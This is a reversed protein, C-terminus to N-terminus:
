KTTGEVDDWSGDDQEKSKKFKKLVSTDGSGIAKFFESMASTKEKVTQCGSLMIVAVLISLSLLSWKFLRFLYRNVETM